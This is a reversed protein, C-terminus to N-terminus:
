SRDREQRRKFPSLLLPVLLFPSHTSPDPKELPLLRVSHIGFVLLNRLNAETICASCDELTQSLQSDRQWADGPGPPRLVGPSFDCLLKNKFLRQYAYLKGHM